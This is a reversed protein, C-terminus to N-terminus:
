REQIAHRSRRPARVSAGAAFLACFLAVYFVFAIRPVDLLSDFLGVVLFAALGALAPLAASVGARISRILWLAGTVVLLAVAIVGLWGQDFWLGLWLNKAHWPLHSRDSTFFWGATGTAFNGNRLLSRHDAAELVLNRINVRQRPDTASISFFAPRATYWRNLELRGHTIEIRVDRWSGDSGAFRGTGSVCNADYLIDRQCVQALLGGDNDSRTQLKLTFPADAAVAGIVQGFRLLGGYDSTKQPGGLRLEAPLSQGMLQFTGPSDLERNGLLYVEPFRGIGMGFVNSLRGSALDIVNKWHHVRDHFDDSVTSFRANVGSSSAMIAALSGTIAAIIAVTTSRRTVTWLARTSIANYGAAASAVGVVTAADRAATWGGWHYAVMLASASLGVYACALLGASTAPDLRRRVQLAAAFTAFALAFAVYVGRPTAAYLLGLFCFAGVGFAMALTLIRRNGARAAVGSYFAAGVSSAVAVLSRYGGSAFVSVLLGAVLAVVTLGAGAPLQNQASRTTVPESAGAATVVVLAIAIGAYLGRSFTVLIAYAGIAVVIGAVCRQWMRKSHVTQWICCPFALALFGDLAAGGVHMEWFMASIRFDSAMDFLDLFAAREWLAVLAVALLGLTLGMCLRDMIRPGARRIDVLLVPLACLAWAAGKSIRLQNFPSYDSALPYPTWQADAVWGRAIGVAYSVALLLVLALGWRPIDYALEGIVPRHRFTARAYAGAIAAIAMADFEDVYMSGTYPVVSSIPLLAMVIVLWGGSWLVAASFVLASAILRPVRLDQQLYALSFGLALVIM